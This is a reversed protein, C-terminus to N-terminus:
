SEFVALDFWFRVVDTRPQSARLKTHHLSLIKDVIALGLGTAPPRIVPDNGTRTDDTLYVRVAETLTEMTNQVSVTLRDPTTQHLAVQITGGVPTNNLANELLNQLVREILGVDAYCFVPLQCNLCLLAMQRNRALLQFQTVVEGLLDAIAFPEPQAQTDRAELKALEALEDVLKILRETGQAIVGAYKLQTDAPLDNTTLAQAYGHMATIPTRLDHSISAVLERRTRESHTLDNITRNLTDAMDNFTNAVLALERGATDPIRASFDGQRFRRLAGTVADIGRKLRFLSMTGILVTATLTILMTLLGWPLVYSQLLREMVTRYDQGGLIVYVYGRMRGTLRVEAASFIKQDDGSRPDDGKLYAQGQTQIFERLPTLSVRKRKIKDAPAHFLLITGTSDLLYVETSPNTVMANFFIHEAAAQDVGQELFPRAFTAIHGAVDFNLRQHTAEFYRNASYATLYGYGAALATLLVLVTLSIKGYLGVYFRRDAKTLPRQM